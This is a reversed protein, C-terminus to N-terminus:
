ECSTCVYVRPQGPAAKPPITALEGEPFEKECRSCSILKAGLLSGPKRKRDTALFGSLM